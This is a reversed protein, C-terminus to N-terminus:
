DLTSDMLMNCLTEALKTVFSSLFSLFFLFFCYFFFFDYHQLIYKVSFHQNLFMLYLVKLNNNNNNNNNNNDNNNNTTTITNLLDTM